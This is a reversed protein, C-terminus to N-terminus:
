TTGAPVQNAVQCNQTAARGGGMEECSARAQLSFQQYHEVQYKKKIRRSRGDKASESRRLDAGKGAAIRSGSSTSASRPLGTGPEGINIVLAEGGGDGQQVGDVIDGDGGLLSGSSNFNPAISSESPEKRMPSPSVSPNKSGGLAQPRLGRM